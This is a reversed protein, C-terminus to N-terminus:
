YYRYFEVLFGHIIDFSVQRDADEPEAEAGHVPLWDLRERGVELQLWSEGFGRFLYILLHVSLNIKYM